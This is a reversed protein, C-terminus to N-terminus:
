GETFWERVQRAVNGTRRALESIRTNDYGIVYSRVRDNLPGVWKEPLARAGKMAGVISGVTAGNCDTDWGGMVAVTISQELDGEGYLLGLLVVAANNITHVRHYGGFSANVAGWAQEWDNYQEHWDMVQRMAAALRSRAPIESLGIEIVKRVDDTALAAALMAAVFMEGYIGNKVHSLTADRFALEAAAEPLGAAAYGFGDARIQAGIWERYPNRYAATQPPQLGNVLNRYAVREATYVMRYPLHTLWTEAVNLTTFGPGFQELVHLGLITYDIDDDRAMYRIRGRVTELHSPHFSVWEPPSEVLPIYDQLPYEGALELYDRIRKRSWGEVPKGLTCGACRGLWAGLLRDEVEAETLPLSLRRPGDPRERQIAELASPEVFSFGPNPRLASLADYLTGMEATSASEDLAAVRDEFSSVDCGEQRRQILEAQLLTFLQM